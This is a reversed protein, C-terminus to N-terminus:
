RVKPNKIKMKEAINKKTINEQRLMRVMDKTPFLSLPIRDGIWTMTAIISKPLLFTTVGPHLHDALQAYTFVEPGAVEVTTKKLHGEISLSIVESVTDVSVPQVQGNAFLPFFGTRCIRRFTNISRDEKGFIMSPRIIAYPLGSKEVLAEAQAKTRQYATGHPNAGIASVQVFQKIKLKKGLGLLWKTVEIHAETFTQSGTERLIGVCNVIADAVTPVARMGRHYIIVHHGRRQLREVVRKGLFGTGGAVLVIM